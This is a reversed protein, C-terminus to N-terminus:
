KTYLENVYNELIKYNIWVKDRQMDESTVLDRDLAEIFIEITRQNSEDWRTHLNALIMLKIGQWKVILEDLTRAFGEM